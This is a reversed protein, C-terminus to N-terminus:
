TTRRFYMAWMELGMQLLLGGLVIYLGKFIFGRSVMSIGVTLWAMVVTAALILAFIQIINLNRM